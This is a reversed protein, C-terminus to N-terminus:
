NKAKSRHQIIKIKEELTVLRNELTKAKTSYKEFRREELSIWFALTVGGLASILYYSYLILRGSEFNDVNSFLVFLTVFFM